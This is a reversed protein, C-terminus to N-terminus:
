FLISLRPVLSFCGGVCVDRHLMLQNQQDYFTIEAVGQCQVRDLSLKHIAVLPGKTQSTM